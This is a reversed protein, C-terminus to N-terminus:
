ATSPGNRYDIVGRELDVRDWTLGLIAGSRAGTYLALRTFLLLHKTRPASRFHALM